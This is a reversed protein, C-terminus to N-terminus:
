EEDVPSMDEPTIDAIEEAPVEEVKKEAKKKSVKKKAPKSEKKAEAIELGKVSVLLEGTKPDEWGRATAVADPAWRPPTKM